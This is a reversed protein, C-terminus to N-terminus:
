NKIMNVTKKNKINNIQILENKLNYIPKIDLISRKFFGKFEINEKGYKTLLANVEDLVAIEKKLLIKPYYNKINIIFGIVSIFLYLIFLFLYLSDKDQASLLFYFTSLFLNIFPIIGVFFYGDFLTSKKLHRYFIDLNNIDLERQKEKKSSKKVM